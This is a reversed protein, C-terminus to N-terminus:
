NIPLATINGSVPKCPCNFLRSFLALLLWMSPRFGPRNGVVELSDSKQKGMKTKRTARSLQRNARWMLPPLRKDFRGNQRIEAPPRSETRNGAVELAGSKLKRKRSKAGLPFNDTPILVDSSGYTQGLLVNIPLDPSPRFEARNGVVGPSDSKSRRKKREACRMPSKRVVRLDSTDSKPLFPWTSTAGVTPSNM